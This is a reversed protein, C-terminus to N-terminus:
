RNKTYFGIVKATVRVWALPGTATDPVLRGILQAIFIVIFAYQYPIQNVFFEVIAQFNPDNIDLM